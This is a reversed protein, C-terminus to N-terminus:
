LLISNRIENTLLTITLDKSSPANNAFSPSPFIELRFSHSASSFKVADLSHGTYFSHRFLRGRLVFATQSLFSPLNTPRYGGFNEIYPPLLLFSPCCEAPRQRLKILAMKFSPTYYKWQTTATNVHEDVCKM